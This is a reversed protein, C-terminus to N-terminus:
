VPLRNQYVSLSTYAAALLPTALGAAQARALMDGVIQDAEVAAGKELDRYMSSTQVSGNSTLLGTTTAIFEPSPAVGVKRVVSVVEDLLALIFDKGGAAGLIEGVNGRMLCTIGGLAALLTWKEWMERAIVPTLRAPFGAGQMFADLAKMRDSATGDLEGYALDQLKSLQVIRGQDDITSMIKCVFGPVNRPTFRQSLVDMHRMGNLTPLIMTDPGVAPALDAIAADMSYAKVTFLIADYHGDIEDATIVKPQLTFDGHPSVIQLGNDRLRQARAPRVLFTVDRGAQALRGGYYGGTSGAGVVLMRMAM